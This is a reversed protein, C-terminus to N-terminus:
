LFALESCKRWDVVDNPNIKIKFVKWALDRVKPYLYEKPEKKSVHRGKIKIQSYHIFSFSRYGINNAFQSIYATPYGRVIFGCGIGRGYNVRSAGSRM